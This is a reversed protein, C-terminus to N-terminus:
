RGRGESMNPFKKTLPPVAEDSPRRDHPRAGSRAGLERMALLHALSHGETDVDADVSDIPEIPDTSGRELVSDGGPVKDTM